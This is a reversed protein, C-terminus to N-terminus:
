ADAMRETAPGADSEPDPLSVVPRDLGAVLSLTRDDALLQVLRSGGRPHFAVASAGADAAAARIGEVVHLVTM